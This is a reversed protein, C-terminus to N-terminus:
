VYFREGIVRKGKERRVRASLQRVSDTGHQEVLYGLLDCAFRLYVQVSREALGKENRLYGAYRREIASARTVPTEPAPTRILHHSRLHNLFGSLATAALCLHAAGLRCAGKLFAAIESEDPERGPPKRRRRWVLFRHLAARKTCLTTRAYGATQLRAIFPDIEGAIINGAAQDDPKRRHNRM